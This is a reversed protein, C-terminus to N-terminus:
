GATRGPKPAPEGVPMKPHDPVDTAAGTILRASRDLTIYSYAWQMLVAVRNAFQVLAMLHVFLWATWALFGSIQLAGLQVVAAARGITAMSGPDRYRFPAPAGAPSGAVRERIRAAVYRAQQIAVPAVGPLLAGSEDECHALDGIVFIEPRGPLTLDKEVLVRGARDLKCGTAEALAKGLPSAAVGAAWVVNECEISRFLM